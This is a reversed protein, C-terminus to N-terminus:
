RIEEIQEVTVSLLLALAEVTALRAMPHPNTAEYKILAVM